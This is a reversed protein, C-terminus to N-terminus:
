LAVSQVRTEIGELYSGFAGEAGGDPGEHQYLKLGKLTRDLCVVSRAAQWRRM